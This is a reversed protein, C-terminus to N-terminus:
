DKKVRRSLQDLKDDYKSVDVDYSKTVGTGMDIALLIARLESYIFLKDYGRWKPNEVLIDTQCAQLFTALDDKKVFEDWESEHLNILSYIFLGVSPFEDYHGGNLKSLKKELATKLPQKMTGYMDGFFTGFRIPGFKTDECRIQARMELPTNNSGMIVSSVASNNRHQMAGEFDGESEVIRAKEYEGEAKEYWQPFAKTVEVGLDKSQLDPKDAKEFPGLHCIDELIYKAEFERWDAMDSHSDTRLSSDKSGSPNLDQMKDDM